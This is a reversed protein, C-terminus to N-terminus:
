CRINSPAITKKLKCNQSLTFILSSFTGGSTLWRLGATSTSYIYIVRFNGLFSTKPLLLQFKLVLNWFCKKSLLNRVSSAWQTFLTWIRLVTHGYKETNPSFVSIQEIFRRIWYSYPFYSGSFVGYQSLKWVTATKWLYFLYTYTYTHGGLVIWIQIFKTVWRSFSSM